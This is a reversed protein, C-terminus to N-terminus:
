KAGGSKCRAILAEVDARAILKRRMTRKPNLPAPLRVTPLQGAAVLERCSWFSIGLLAAAEHEDLLLPEIAPAAGEPSSAAARSKM